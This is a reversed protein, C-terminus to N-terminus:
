SAGSVDQWRNQWQGTALAIHNVEQQPILTCSWLRVLLASIM